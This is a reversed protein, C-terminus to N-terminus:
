GGRERTKIDKLYVYEHATVIQNGIKTLVLIHLLTTKKTNFSSPQWSGGSGGGLPSVVQQPTSSSNTSCLLSGLFPRALEGRRRTKNSVFLFGRERRKKSTPLGSIGDRRVRWLSGSRRRRGKM